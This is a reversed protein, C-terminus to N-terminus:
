EPLPEIDWRRRELVPRHTGCVNRTEGITFKVPPTNHGFGSVWEGQDTRETATARWRAPASCPYQAGGQNLVRQECKFKRALPPAVTTPERPFDDPVDM